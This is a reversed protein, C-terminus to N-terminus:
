REDMPLKSDVIYKSALRIRLRGIRREARVLKECAISVTDRHAAVIMEYYQRANARGICYGVFFVAIYVPFPILWNM